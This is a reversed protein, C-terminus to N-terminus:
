LQLLQYKSERVTSLCFSTMTGSGPCRRHGMRTSWWWSLSIMRGEMKKMEMRRMRGEMKKMEMRKM